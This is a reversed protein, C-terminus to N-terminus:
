NLREGENMVEACFKEILDPSIKPDSLLKTAQLGIKTSWQSPTGGLCYALEKCALVYCLAILHQDSNTISM